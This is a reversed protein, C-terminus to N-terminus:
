RTKVVKGPKRDDDAAKWKVFTDQDASPFDENVNLRLDRNKFSRWGMQHFRFTVGGDWGTVSKASTNKSFFADAINSNFDANATNCASFYISNVNKSQINDISKNGNILCAGSNSFLKTGDKFDLYGNGSDTVRGHAIVQIANIGNSDDLSNWTNVFEEASNVSYVICKAGYEEEYQKKIIEAQKPNDKYSDDDKNYTAYIVYSYIDDLSPAYATMPKFM